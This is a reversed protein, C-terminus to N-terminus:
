KGAENLEIELLYQANSRWATTARLFKLSRSVEESVKDVNATHALGEQPGLTARRAQIIRTLYQLSSLKQRDQM